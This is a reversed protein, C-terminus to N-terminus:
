SITNQTIKQIIENSHYLLCGTGRPKNRPKSSFRWPIHNPKSLRCAAETVWLVSRLWSSLGRAEDIKKTQWRIEIHTHTNSPQPTQSCPERGAPIASQRRAVGASGPSLAPGPLLARVVARRGGPETLWQREIHLYSLAMPWTSSASASSNAVLKGSYAAWFLNTKLHRQFSNLSDSSRVLSTGFQRRLQMSALTSFSILETFEYLLNSSSSMKTGKQTPVMHNDGANPDQKCAPHKIAEMDGAHLVLPM